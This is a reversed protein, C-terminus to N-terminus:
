NDARDGVAEIVASAFGEDTLALIGCTMRGLARGIEEKTCPLTILRVSGKEAAKHARKLSGPSLDVAVCILKAIAAAAHVAEDGAVLRGSRKALGLFGLLDRM